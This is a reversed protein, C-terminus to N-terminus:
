SVGQGLCAKVLGPSCLVDLPRELYLIGCLDPSLSDNERIIYVGGTGRCPLRRGGQELCTGQGHVQQDKGTGSARWIYSGKDIKIIVQIRNM